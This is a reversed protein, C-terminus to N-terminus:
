LGRMAAIVKDPGGRRGARTSVPSSPRTREEPTETGAVNAGRNEKVVRPHTGRAQRGPRPALGKALVARISRAADALAVKMADAEALRAAVEADLEARARKEADEATKRREEATPARRASSPAKKPFKPVPAKMPIGPIREPEDFVPRGAAPASAYVKSRQKPAMAWQTAVDWVFPRFASTTQVAQGSSWAARWGLEFVRSGSEKAQAACVARRM